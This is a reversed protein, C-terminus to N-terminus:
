PERVTGAVPQGGQEGLQDAGPDLGLGRRESLDPVLEPRETKGQLGASGSEKAPNSGLARATEDAEVGKYGELRAESNGELHAAIFTTALVIVSLLGLLIATNTLWKTVQIDTINTSAVTLTVFGAFLGVALTSLSTRYGAYHKAEGAAEARAIIRGDPSLKKYEDLDGQGFYKKKTM